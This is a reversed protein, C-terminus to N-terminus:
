IERKTKCFSIFVHPVNGQLMNLIVSFPFDFFCISVYISSKAIVSNTLKNGHVLAQKKGLFWSTSNHWSDSRLM